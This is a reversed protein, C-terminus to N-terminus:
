RNRRRLRRRLALPSTDHCEGEAFRVGSCGAFCATTYTVGDEGCVPRWGAFQGGSVCSYICSQDDSRFRERSPDCMGPTTTVAQVRTANTDTRESVGRSHNAARANTVNTSSSSSSASSAAVETHNTDDDSPFVSTSCHVWCVNAFTGGLHCVPAWKEDRCMVRCGWLETRLRDGTPPPAAVAVDDALVDEAHARTVNVRTVNVRTVNVQKARAPQTANAPPPKAPPSQRSSAEVVQGDAGGHLIALALLFLLCPSSPSVM